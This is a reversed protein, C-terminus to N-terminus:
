TEAVSGWGTLAIYFKLNGLRHSHLIGDELINCRTARTLISTESSRLAEMMLTVLIPSSPVVNAAVLLRRVSRLFVDNRVLAVHRLIGSSMITTVFTAETLKQPTTRGRQCGVIWKTVHKVLVCKLHTTQSTFRCRRETISTLHSIEGRHTHKHTHPTVSLHTLSRWLFYLLWPLLLVEYHAPGTQLCPEAWPVQSEGKGQRLSCTV